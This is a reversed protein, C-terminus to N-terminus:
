STVCVRLYIWPHARLISVAASHMHVIREEQSWGAQEPHLALYAPFLYLQGSNGTFNGYGFESRVDMPPRKELHASVNAAALPYLNTEGACSFGNYGTEVRKRMQWAALWPLVSLLMVAHANWRLGPVRALVAILGLTLAFPLYYTAPRVFTAAAIWLGAAALVRLHHVRLFSALLEISLLLLALFLTDSLLAYSFSVIGPEIAALWAAGLAIRNDKFVTWGLRWVLVIMFVSIMVNIVAAVPLGALSTIALFFPYGPTRLLDPMGDAFFRGHLLLNRGPILYSITDAHCLASTGSRALTVALLTLRVGAAAIVPWALRPTWWETQFVPNANLGSSEWRMISM